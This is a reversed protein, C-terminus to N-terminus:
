WPADSFDTSCAKLRNSHSARVPLIGTSGIKLPERVLGILGVVGRESAFTGAAPRRAARNVLRTQSLLILHVQRALRDMTTERADPNSCGIDARHLAVM